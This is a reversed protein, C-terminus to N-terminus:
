PSSAPGALHAKLRDSLENKTGESSLGQSAALDRLEALNMRKIKQSSWPQVSDCVSILDDEDAAPAPAAVAVPAPAAVPVPAPALEPEEEIIVPPSSSSGGEQQMFVISPGFENMLNDMLAATMAEHEPALAIDAGMSAVVHAALDHAHAEVETQTHTHANGFFPSPFTPAIANRAAFMAMREELANLRRWTYYLSLAVVFFLAATAATIGINPVNM